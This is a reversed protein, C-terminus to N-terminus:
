SICNYYIDKYVDQTPIFFSWAAKCALCHAPQTSELIYRKACDQCYQGQDEKCGICNIAKRKKTFPEACVICESM